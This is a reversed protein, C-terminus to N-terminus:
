QGKRQLAQGSDMWLSQGSNYLIQSNYFQSDSEALSFKHLKNWWWFELWLNQHPFNHIIVELTVAGVYLKNQDGKLSANQYAVLTAIIKDEGTNLSWCVDRFDNEVLGLNYYDWFHSVTNKDLM